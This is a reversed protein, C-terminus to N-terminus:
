IVINEKITRVCITTRIIMATLLKTTRMCATLSPPPSTTPIKILPRNSLLHNKTKKYLIKVFIPEPYNIPSVQNNNLHNDNARTGQSADVSEYEPNTDRSETAQDHDPSTKKVM